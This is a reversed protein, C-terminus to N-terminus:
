NNGSASPHRIKSENEDMVFFSSNGTTANNIINSGGLRHQYSEQSIYDNNKPLIPAGQLNSGVIGTPPHM